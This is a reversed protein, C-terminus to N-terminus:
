LAGGVSAPLSLPRPPEPDGGGGDGDDGGSDATARHVSAPARRARARTQRRVRPAARARARYRAEAAQKDDLADWEGWGRGEPTQELGAQYRPDEGVLDPPIGSGRDWLDVPPTAFGSNQHISKKM